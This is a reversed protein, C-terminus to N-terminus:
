RLNEKRSLRRDFVHSAFADFFDHRRKVARIDLSCRHLGSSRGAASDSEWEDHRFERWMVPGQTEPARRTERLGGEARDGGGGNKEPSFRGKGGGVSFRWMQYSSDDRIAIQRPPHRGGWKSRLTAVPLAFPNQRDGVSSAAGSLCASQSRLLEKLGGPRPTM